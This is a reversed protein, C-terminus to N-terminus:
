LMNVRSIQRICDHLDSEGAVVDPTRFVFKRPGIRASRHLAAVTNRIGIAAVGTSQPPMRDTPFRRRSAHWDEVVLWISLNPHDSGIGLDTAVLGISEERWRRTTGM